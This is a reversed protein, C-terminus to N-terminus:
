LVIKKNKREDGSTQRNGIRINGLVQLNEMMIIM